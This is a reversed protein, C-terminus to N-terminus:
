KNKNFPWVKLGVLIVNTFWNPKAAEQQGLLPINAQTLQTIKDHSSELQSTLYSIKEQAARQENARETADTTQSTRLDTITKNLENITSQMKTLEAGQNALNQDRVTIEPIADHIFNHFTRKGACGDIEGQTAGGNPRLIKYILQADEVTAIM